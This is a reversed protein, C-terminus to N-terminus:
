RSEPRTAFTQLATIQQAVAVGWHAGFRRDDTGGDAVAQAFARVARTLPLEPSVPVPELDVVLKREGRDDYTLITSGAVVTLQRAKQKLDVGVYSYAAGRHTQWRAAIHHESEHVARLHPAPGGLDLVMAVDHPAWDWLWPWDHHAVPQVDGAHTAIQLYAHDKVRHHLEEYAPAFLHQHNVLVVPPSVWLQEASVVKQAEEVALGVPKEILLPKRYYSVRQGISASAAPSTAVIVADVEQFRTEEDRAYIYTVECNGAQKAAAIYNKGWRGAGVLGLRIM